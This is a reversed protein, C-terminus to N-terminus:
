ATGWSGTFARRCKNSVGAGRGCRCIVKASAQKVLSTGVKRSSCTSTHKFSYNVHLLAWVRAQPVLIEDANDRDHQGEQSGARCRHIRGVHFTGRRGRPPLASMISLGTDVRHCTTPACTRNWFYCRCTALFPLLQLPRTKSLFVASDGKGGAQGHLMAEYSTAPKELRTGPQWLGRNALRRFPPTHFSYPQSSSAQYPPTPRSGPEVSARDLLWKARSGM